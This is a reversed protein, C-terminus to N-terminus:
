SVKVGSLLNVLWGKGMVLDKGLGQDWELVFFSWGFFMNKDKVFRRMGRLAYACMLWTMNKEEPDFELQVKRSRFVLQGIYVPTRAPHRHVSSSALNLVNFVDNRPLFDRYEYFELTQHTGATPLDYPDSIPSENSPTPCVARGNPNSQSPLSQKSVPDQSMSLSFFASTLPPAQNHHRCRRLM